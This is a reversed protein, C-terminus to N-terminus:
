LILSGTFGVQWLALHSNTFKSVIATTPSRVEQAGFSIREYYIGFGLNRSLLYDSSFRFGSPNTYVLKSGSYTEKKLEYNGLFQYDLKFLFRDTKYGVTPSAMNWRSGYMNGNSNPNSYQEIMRYDSSVGLLYHSQLVTGLTLGFGTQNLTPSTDNASSVNSSGSFLSAEIHLNLSSSGSSSAFAASAFIFFYFTCFIIKKRILFKLSIKNM